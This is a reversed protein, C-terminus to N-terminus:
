NFKNTEEEDRKSNPWCRQVINLSMTLHTVITALLVLTRVIGQWIDQNHATIVYSRDEVEDWAEEEDEEKSDVTLTSTEEEQPNSSHMIKNKQQTEGQIRYTDRSREHMLDYARCDKEDHGVFKCFTCYINTPTQVYKQIYYCESPRHRTRYVNCWPVTAQKLPSHARSALYEHFLPCHDKDHGELKCTICWIDERKEKGKDKKMDKVQLSLITLKKLIQSMGPNAEGVPAVELKISIELAEAQSTFKQQM